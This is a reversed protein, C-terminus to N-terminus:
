VYKFYYGKTQTLKGRCCASINSTNANLERAADSMCDWKKLINGDKDIQYLPKASSNNAGLFKERVEKRKMPNKDGSIYGKLGKNWTTKGKKADSMKKIIDESFKHGKTFESKPSVRLGKNRGKRQISMKKKEKDTYRFGLRFVEGGKSVNYGYKRNTTKQKEITQIELRIANEKTLNDKLIITEFNDWGYKLIANYFIVCKKYAIGNGIFRKKPNSTIGIYQKKNIKNKHSYLTFM